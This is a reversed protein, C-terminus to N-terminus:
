QQISQYHIQVNVPLPSYLSIGAHPQPLEQPRLGLSSMLGFAPIKKYEWVQTLTCVNDLKYFHHLRVRIARLSVSDTECFVRPLVHPITRNFCHVDSKFIPYHGICEFAMCYWGFCDLMM